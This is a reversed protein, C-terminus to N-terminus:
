FVRESSEAAKAHSALTNRDIGYHLQYQQAKLMDLAVLAIGAADSAHNSFFDGNFTTGLRANVALAIDAKTYSRQGVLQYGWRQPLLGVLVPYPPQLALGQIGGILREIDPRGRVYREAADDSSCWSFEEYALVDPQWEAILDQLKSLVWLQRDIGRLWPQPIFTGHAQLHETSTLVAWGTRSVGPDIGLISTPSTAKNPFDTTTM